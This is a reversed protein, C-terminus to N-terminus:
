AARIIGPSMRFLCIHLEKGGVILDSLTGSIDSIPVQLCLRHSYLLAIRDTHLRSCATWLRAFINLSATEAPEKDMRSILALSAPLSLKTECRRLRRVSSSKMRSRVM